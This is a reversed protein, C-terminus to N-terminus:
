LGAPNIVYIDYDDSALVEAKDPGHMVGVRLHQFEAYKNCQEPWVNYMPRIPCIVIMKDVYGKEQLIRFAM